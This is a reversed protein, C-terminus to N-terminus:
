KDGCEIDESMGRQVIDSIFQKTRTILWSYLAPEEERIRILLRDEIWKLYISKVDINAKDPANLLVMIHMGYLDLFIRHCGDRGFRHAWGRMDLLDILWESRAPTRKEDYGSAWQFALTQRIAVVVANLWAAERPMQLYNSM